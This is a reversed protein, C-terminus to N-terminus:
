SVAGAAIWAEQEATEVAGPRARRVRALAAAPTRGRERLLRAAVMGSRGLGGWCHVAVTENRDLRPHIRAAAAQWATESPPTGFDPVPMQLWEIGVEALEGGLQDAEALEHPEALGLLCSVRLLRLSAVDERFPRRRGPCPLILLTGHRWAEPVPSHPSAAM